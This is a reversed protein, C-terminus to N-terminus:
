DEASESSGRTKSKLTDLDYVFALVEAIALYLLEPIEEGLELHALAAALHPDEYLPVGAEEALQIIKEATIATGKATLRPAGLGDYALAMAKRAPRRTQKFRM